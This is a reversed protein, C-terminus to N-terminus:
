GYDYIKYTEEATAQSQNAERSGTVAGMMVCDSVPPGRPSQRHTFLSFFFHFLKLAMLALFIAWQTSM